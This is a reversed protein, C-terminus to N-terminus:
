CIKGYADATRNDVEVGVVVNGGFFLPFHIDEDVVADRGRGIRNPIRSQVYGVLVRRIDPDSDAGPDSAQRADFVIM